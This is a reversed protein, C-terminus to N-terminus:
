SASSVQISSLIEWMEIHQLHIFENYSVQMECWMVEKSTVFYIVECWLALHWIWIAESQLGRFIPPESKRNDSVPCAKNESSFIHVRPHFQGM